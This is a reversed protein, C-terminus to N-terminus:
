KKALYKKSKKGQKGRKKSKRKKSKKVKKSKRKGGMGYPYYNLDKTLASFGKQKLVTNTAKNLNTIKNSSNEKNRENEEMQNYLHIYDIMESQSLPGNNKSKHQLQEVRTIPKLYNSYTKTQIAGNNLEVDYDIDGNNDNVSIIVGPEVGNYLVTDGMKFKSM